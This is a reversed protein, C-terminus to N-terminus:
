SIEFIMRRAGAIYQGSSGAGVDRTFHRNGRNAGENEFMTLAVSLYPTKGSMRLCAM